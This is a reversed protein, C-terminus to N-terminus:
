FNTDTHIHGFAMDLNEKSIAELIHNIGLIVSTIHVQPLIKLKAKGQPVQLKQSLFIILVIM